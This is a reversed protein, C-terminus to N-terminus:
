LHMEFGGESMANSIVVLQVDSFVKEVNNTDTACTVHTFMEKIQPKKNLGCFADTIRAIGKEYDFCKADYDAFLPCVNLPIKDVCHKQRFLDKKNLFLIMATKSLMPSNCIDDFLEFQDEMANVTVDEHLLEDYVSLASIFIVGVVYEFCHIWKRRQSRQGGVDIVNFTDNDITFNMEHLGTTQLRCLMIDDYTPLYGAESIVNLQDWFHSTSTEIRTVNRKNYIERIVPEDWLMQISQAIDADLQATKRNVYEFSMLADAGKMADESMPPSELILDHDDFFSLEDYEGMEDVEDGNAKHEKQENRHNWDIYIQLAAKMQSIVQNHIHRRYERKDEESFGKGHIQRLQKFVTSKGVGGSGLFLIKKLSNTDEKESKLEKTILVSM